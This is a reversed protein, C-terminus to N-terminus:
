WRIPHVKRSHWESSSSWYIVDIWRAPATVGWKDWSMNCWQRAKHNAYLKYTAICYNSWKFEFWIIWFLYHVRDELNYQLRIKMMRDTLINVSFAISQARILAICCKARIVRKSGRGEGERGTVGTYWRCVDVDYLLLPFSLSVNSRSGFIFPHFPSQVASSCSLLAFTISVRLHM